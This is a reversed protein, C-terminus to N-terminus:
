SQSASAAAQTLVTLLELELDLVDDLDVVLLSDLTLRKKSANNLTKNENARRM